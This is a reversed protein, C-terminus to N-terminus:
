EGAENVRSEFVFMFSSALEIVKRAQILSEEASKVRGAQMLVLAETVLPALSAYAVTLDVPMYEIRHEGDQIATVPGISESSAM